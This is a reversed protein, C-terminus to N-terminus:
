RRSSIKGFKLWRFQWKASACLRSMLKVHYIYWHVLWHNKLFIIDITDKLSFASESSWGDWGESDESCGLVSPDDAFGCDSRVCSVPWGSSDELGLRLASDSDIVAEVEVDPRFAIPRVILSIWSEIVVIRSSYM